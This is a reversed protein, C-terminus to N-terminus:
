QGTMVMGMLVDAIAYCDADGIRVEDQRCYETFKEVDEVTSKIAFEFSIYRNEATEPVAENLKDFGFTIESKTSDTFRPPWHKGDLVREEEIAAVTTGQHISLEQRILEQPMEGFKDNCGFVDLQCYGGNTADQACKVDTYAVYETWYGRYDAETRPFERVPSIPVLGDISNLYLTFGNTFSLLMLTAISNSVLVRNDAHHPHGISIEVMFHHLNVLLKERGTNLSQLELGEVDLKMFLVRRSSAFNAAGLEDLTVTRHETPVAARESDWSLDGSKGNFLAFESTNSAGVLRDVVTLSPSFDNLSASMRLLSLFYPNVEVAAVKCGHALAILSYWGVHAGIDLVDVTGDDNPSNGSCHRSVISTFVTTESLSWEGKYWINTSVEKFHEM